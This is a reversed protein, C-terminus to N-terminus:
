TLLTCATLNFNSYFEGAFHINTGYDCHFPPEIALKKTNELTINFLDALIQFREDPGFFDEPKM